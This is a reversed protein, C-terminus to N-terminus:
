STVAARIADESIPGPRLIRIGDTMMEVVTSAISGLPIAGGDICIDPSHALQALAEAVDLAPPAGSRNASTAALPAGLRDLFALMFPHDPVRFGITEGSNACSAVITLPGPCFARYVAELRSTWVVGAARAQEPTRCLMQLPKGKERGKM